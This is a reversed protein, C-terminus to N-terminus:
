QSHGNERRPAGHRDTEGPGVSFTIFRLQQDKLEELRFWLM